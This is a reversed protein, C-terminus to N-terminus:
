QLKLWGDSQMKGVVMRDHMVAFVLASPAKHDIATSVHKDLQMQENEEPCLLTNTETLICPTKKEDCSCILRWHQYM